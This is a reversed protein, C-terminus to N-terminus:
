NADLLNLHDSIIHGRLSQIQQDSFISTSTNWNVQQVAVMSRAEVNPFNELSDVLGQPDIQAWAAGVRLYYGYVMGNKSLQRALDLTEQTRGDLILETAVAVFANLKTKGDRVRPLLEMAANPESRAVISVIEGEPGFGHKPMPLNRAIEFSLGADRRVLSRAATLLLENRLSEIEPTTNIWEIAGDQDKILWREVLANAASFQVKKNLRLVADASERPSTTVIMRKIALAGADGQLAEPILHLKELILKPDGKFEGTYPDKQLWEELVNRELKRRFGSSPLNHVSSIAAVPDMQAWWNVMSTITQNRGPFHHEKAFDFAERPSMFVLTTLIHELIYKQAEYSALSTKVEELVSIGSEDIWKTAVSVLDDYHVPNPQAREVVEYWVRKPNELSDGILPEIQSASPFVDISTNYRSGLTRWMRRSGLGLDESIAQRRDQSFEERAAFVSDLMDRKDLYPLSKVRETAGDPDEQAWEFFVIGMLSSRNPELRKLAFDLAHEPNIEALRRVLLAQFDTRTKPKVKWSVQISQTLWDEIKSEDLEHIWSAFALNREFPRVPIDLEEIRDPLNNLDALKDANVLATTSFLFMLVAAHAPIKMETRTSRKSWRQRTM